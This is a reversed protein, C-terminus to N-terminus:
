ELIKIWSEWEVDQRGGLRRYFDKASRNEPLVAWKLRKCGLTNAYAIVALFIADGVGQGRASKCVYLEKLILNPKLDFTFPVVYIVAYGVIQLDESEALFATFQSNKCGNLGRSLLDNKTVCFEDLYHEFQALEKMLKLLINVDKATAQRVNHKTPNTTSNINGM